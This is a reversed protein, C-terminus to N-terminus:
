AVEAVITSPPSHKRFNESADDRSATSRVTDDSPLRLGFREDYIHRVYLRDNTVESWCLALRHYCIAALQSRQVKQQSKTKASRGLACQGINRTAM